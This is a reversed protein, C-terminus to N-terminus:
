WRGELGLSLGQVLTTGNANISGSTPQDGGSPVTLVQGSLQQTPQAIGSLWMGFYGARLDLWSCIPLVGTVGLEGVFACNLPAQNVTVGQGEVTGTANSQYFSSQVANNYYAGAKIVSDVRMWPLTVLLADLGIQGGYLSNICNTQYFDEIPDTGGFSDTLSFTEQWEVWRFGALFRFNEGKRWHRNLEFSQLAAGLNASGSDFNNSNGYIGPSSLAYGDDQLPLTRQSRWNAARLYTMELATGNCKNFRFLSFRPGAAVPSNMQNANLVPVGGIGTEVLQRDPPANRFLFLADARGAWCAHGKDHWCKMFQFLGPPDCCRQCFASGQQCAGDYSQTGNTACLDESTGLWTPGSESDYVLRSTSTDDDREEDTARVDETQALPEDSGEWPGIAEPAEPAADLVSPMVIDSDTEFREALAPGMIALDVLGSCTLASLMTISLVRFRDMGFGMVDGGELTAIRGNPDTM